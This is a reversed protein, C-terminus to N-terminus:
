EENPIEPTDIGQRIKMREIQLKEKENFFNQMDKKMQITESRFYASVGFVSASYILAQGLIWLVSDAVEGVPPIMFGAISLIWGLAFAVCASIIAIKEKINLDNWNNKM